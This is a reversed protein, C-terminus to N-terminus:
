GDSGHVRPWAISLRYADFGFETLLDLDQEWRHYHDCAPEGTDGNLVMGPTACGPTGSRSFAGVDEHTAGEIQFSATASGFLFDKKWMASDCPPVLMELESVISSTMVLVDKKTFHFRNWM